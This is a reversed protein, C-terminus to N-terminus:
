RSCSKPLVLLFALLLSRMRMVELGGLTSAHGYLAQQVDWLAANTAGGEHAYTPGNGLGTIGLRYNYAVFVFGTSLDFLGEPTNQSKSGGTFGGGYTWVIVPLKKGEPINTPAWVDLFLCDEASSCDVDAAALNGENIGTEVPPWSPKAWRLEGTPAASFRINQYKVYGVTSNGAVARITSYDLTVIPLTTNLIPLAVILSAGILHLLTTSFHM